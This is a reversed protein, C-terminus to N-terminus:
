TKSTGKAFHDLLLSRHPSLLKQFTSKKRCKELRTPPRCTRLSSPVVPRCSIYEVQTPTVTPYLRCTLLSTQVRGTYSHSYPLTSVDRLSSTPVVPRCSLRGTYSHSYPLTSVDRLSSTPVVPRCSIYEVQTPTVTPYLRCTVYPVQLSSLVVPFTSSRYPPFVTPSNGFLLNSVQTPTVTPYLRCTVYPVQLSSLVCSIYEVQTPTVTPYLRCTVYPVQLSSLFHVRGTYSHSYPLTSVDRLSSTPVVPRCSIYEVQTPTVTPYLRCTM